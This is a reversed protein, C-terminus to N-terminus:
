SRAGRDAPRVLTPMLNFGTKNYIAWGVVSFAADLLKQALVLTMYRTFRLTQNFALEQNHLIIDAQEEGIRKEALALRTQMAAEALTRVYGEMLPANENWWDSATGQLEAAIRAALENANAPDFSSLDPM